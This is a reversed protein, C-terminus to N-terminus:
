TKNVGMTEGKIAVKSLLNFTQRTQLENLEHQSWEYTVIAGLNTNSRALPMYEISSLQVQRRCVKNERELGLARERSRAGVVAVLWIGFAVLQSWCILDSFPKFSWVHSGSLEEKMSSFTCYTGSNPNSKYNIILQLFTSASTKIM